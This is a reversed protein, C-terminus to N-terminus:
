SLTMAPGKLSVMYSARLGMRAEKLSSILAINNHLALSQYALVQTSALFSLSSTAAPLQCRVELCAQRAVKLPEPILKDDVETGSQLGTAERSTVAVPEASSEHLQQGASTQGEPDEQPEDVADLDSSHGLAQRDEAVQGAAQLPEDADDRAVDDPISPAAGLTTASSDDPAEQFAPEGWGDDDGWDDGGLLDAAGSDELMSEQGNKLESVLHSDAVPAHSGNTDAEHQLPGSSAELKQESIVASGKAPVHLQGAEHHTGNQVRKPQASEADPLSNSPETAEIESTDKSPEIQELDAPATPSTVSEVSSAQCVAASVPGELNHSPQKSSGGLGDAAPTSFPDAEPNEAGVGAEESGATTATDAAAAMDEPPPSHLYSSPQNGQWESEELTDSALQADTEPALDSAAEQFSDGWSDESGIPEEAKDAVPLSDVSTEPVAERTHHLGNTETHGIQHADGPGDANQFADAWGTDDGGSGQDQSAEKDPQRSNPQRSQASEAAGNISSQAQEERLELSQIDVDLSTGPLLQGVSLLLEM